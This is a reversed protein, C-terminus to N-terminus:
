QAYLNMNISERLYLHDIEYLNKQGAVNFEFLDQLINTRSNLVIYTFLFIEM